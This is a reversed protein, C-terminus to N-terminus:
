PGDAISRALERCALFDLVTRAEDFAMNWDRWQLDGCREFEARKEADLWDILFRCKSEPACRISVRDVSLFSRLWQEAYKMKLPSPLDAKRRPESAERPESVVASEKAIPAPETKREPESVGHPPTDDLSEQLKRMWDV